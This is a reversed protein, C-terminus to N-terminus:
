GNNEDTIILRDSLYARRKNLMKRGLISIMHQGYIIDSFTRPPYGNYAIFTKNIM